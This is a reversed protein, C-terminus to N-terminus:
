YNQWLVEVRRNGSKGGVSTYTNFYTKKWDSLYNQYLEIDYNSIIIKAKTDPETIEKLLKEHDEYGYSMRYVTGLNKWEDEPKLYSPDLYMMVNEYRRYQRVLDLANVQTITVDRMRESIKRLNRVAKYYSKVNHCKERSYAVGMGDRSCYYVYYIIFAFDVDRVSLGKENSNITDATLQHIADLAHEKAYQEQYKERLKKNDESLNKMAAIEPWVEDFWADDVEGHSTTYTDKVLEWYQKYVKGYHEFQLREVPELGFTGCYLIESIKTVILEYDERHVASKLKKFLDNNYKRSCMLALSSLEKNTAVNLEDSIRMRELVLQDFTEKNPRETLLLEVLEETKGADTMVNMFTTLGYDGDNYIEAEHRKHKNLLVRCGGGFAEVYLSTNDYDLMSCILPSMRAKGGYYPFASLVKSSPVKNM